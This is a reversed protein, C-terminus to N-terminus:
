YGSLDLLLVTPIRGRKTLYLLKEEPYYHNISYDSKVKKFEYTTNDITGLYYTSEKTKEDYQMLELLTIDKLPIYNQVRYGWDKAIFTWWPEGTYKDFCYLDDGMRVMIDDSNFKVPGSSQVLWYKKDGLPKQWLTAGTNLDNAGLQYAAKKIGGEGEIDMRKISYIINDEITYNLIDFRATFQDFVGTFFLDTTEGTLLDVTILWEQPDNYYNTAIKRTFFLKNSKAYQFQYEIISDIPETPETRVRWMGGSPSYENNKLEWLQQSTKINKAIVSHSTSFVAISDQIYTIWNIHDDQSITYSETHGTKLNLKGLTLKTKSLQFGEHKESSLTYIKDQAPYGISWENFTIGKTNSNWLVEGTNIDIGQIKKATNQLLYEQDVLYFGEEGEYFKHWVKKGTKNNFAYVYSSACNTLRETARHAWVCSTSDNILLPHYEGSCAADKKNVQM